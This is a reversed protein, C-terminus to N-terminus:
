DAPPAALRAVCLSPAVFPELSVADWPARLEALAGQMLGLHIACVVDTHQTAVELFPCHHLDVTAGDDDTRVEPQFGIEGLLRGVRALGEEGSVPQSPLGREVLHRGWARGAQIAPAGAGDMSAVLGTLMEALLGYSRAGEAAAAAYVVRRRGPTTRAELERRAQGGAVLGDLHFRATNPHLGTADAVEQVGLPRGADRLTALVQARRTGLPTSEQADALRRTM